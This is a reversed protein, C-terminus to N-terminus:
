GRYKIPQIATALAQAKRSTRDEAKKGGLRHHIDAAIEKQAPRALEDSYNEWYKAMVDCMVEIEPTKYPLYIGSDLQAEDPALPTKSFNLKEDLKKITGLLDQKEKVSLNM